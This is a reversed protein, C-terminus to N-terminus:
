LSFTIAPILNGGAHFATSLFVNGAVEQIVGCCVGVAFKQFLFFASDYPHQPAAAHVLAFTGASILIRAATAAKSNIMSAYSPAVQQLIKAPIKKLIIEQLMGRFVIEESFPCTLFTAGFHGFGRNISGNIARFNQAMQYVRSPLNIRFDHGAMKLYFIFLSEMAVGAFFCKKMGTLISGPVAQAHIPQHHPIPTAIMKHAESVVKGLRV